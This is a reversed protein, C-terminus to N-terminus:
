RCDCEGRSSEAKETRLAERLLELQKSPCHGESYAGKMLM